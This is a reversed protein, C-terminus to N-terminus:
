VSINQSSSSSSSSRSGSDDAEDLGVSSSSFSEEPQYIKALKAWDTTLMFAVLVSVSTLYGLSIAALLCPVGVGFVYIMLSALPVIFTVTVAIETLVVM